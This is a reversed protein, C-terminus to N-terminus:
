DLISNVAKVAKEMREEHTGLIAVYRRRRGTLEEIIRNEIWERYNKSDRIGDDVWPFDIKTLLYLDYRSDNAMQGILDASKGYHCQSWIMTTLLDTDCFLVKNASLALRAESEIQGKAIAILDDYDCAAGKAEIYERAYEPVWVTQFHKALAQALTTKGTSEAGILCVRKLPYESKMISAEFGRLRNGPLFM